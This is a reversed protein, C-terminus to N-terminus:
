STNPCEFPPNVRTAEGENGRSRGKARDRSKSGSRLSGRQCDDFRVLVLGNGKRDSRQFQSHRKSKVSFSSRVLAYIPRTSQRLSGSNEQTSRECPHIGTDAGSGALGYGQDLGPYELPRYETGYAYKNAESYKEELLKNRLRQNEPSEPNIRWKMYNAEKNLKKAYYDVLLGFGSLSLEWEKIQQAKDKVDQWYEEPKRHWFTPTTYHKRIGLKKVPLLRKSGYRDNKIKAKVIYGCFNFVSKYKNMTAETTVKFIWGPYNSKIKKFINRTVNDPNLSIGHFHIRNQRNIETQVHYILGARKLALFINARDKKIKSLPAQKPAHILFISKYVKHRDNQILAHRYKKANYLWGDLTTWVRDRGRKNQKYVPNEQFYLFQRQCHSM